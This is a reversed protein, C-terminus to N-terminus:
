LMTLGVGERFCWRGPTFLVFMALSVPSVVFTVDLKVAVRNDVEACDRKHMM